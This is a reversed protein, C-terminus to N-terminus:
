LGVMALATALLIRLVASWAERQLAMKQANGANAVAWAADQAEFNALFEAKSLSPVIKALAEATNGDLILQIWAWIEEATMAALAPFYQAVVPRWKEPVKSLVEDLTMNM